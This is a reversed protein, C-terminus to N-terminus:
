TSGQLAKKAYQVVEEVNVYQDQYQLMAFDINWTHALNWFVDNFYGTQKPPAIEILKTIGPISFIINSEGAGHPAIILKAKSFCEITEKLTFPEKFEVIKENPFAEKIAQVLEWHNAISRDGGSRKIILIILEKLNVDQANPLQLLQSLYHRAVYAQYHSTNGCESFQPSILEEIFIPEEFIDVLEIDGWNIAKFADENVKNYKNKQILIADIKRNGDSNQALLYDYVLFFRLYNEIMFHYYNDSWYQWLYIARKFKRRTNSTDIRIPPMDLEELRCGVDPVYYHHAKKDHILSRYVYVNNIKFLFPKEFAQLRSDLTEKWFPLKWSRELESSMALANVGIIKPFTVVKKWDFDKFLVIRIADGTCGKLSMRVKIYDNSTQGACPLRELVIDSSNKAPVIIQKKLSRM